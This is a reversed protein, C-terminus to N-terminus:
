EFNLFNDKEEPKLNPVMSHLQNIIVLTRHVLKTNMNMSNKKLQELIKTYLSLDAMYNIDNVLGELLSFCGHRNLM